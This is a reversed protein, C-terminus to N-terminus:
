ILNNKFILTLYPLLIYSLYVFLWKEKLYDNVPADTLETIYCSLGLIATANLVLYKNRVLMGHPSLTATPLCEEM